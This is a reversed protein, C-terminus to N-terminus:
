LVHSLKLRLPKKLFKVNLPFKVCTCWLLSMAWKFYSESIAKTMTVVYEALEEPGECMRVVPGLVLQVDVLVEECDLRTVDSFMRQSSNTTAAARGTVAQRYQRNQHTKNGRNCARTCTHSTTSSLITHCCTRISITMLSSMSERGIKAIKVHKPTVKRIFCTSRYIRTLSLVQEIFTLVSMCYVCM